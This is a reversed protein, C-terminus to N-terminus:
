ETFLLSTLSVPSNGPSDLETTRTIKHYRYKLFTTIILLYCMLFVLISVFCATLLTSGWKWTCSQTIQKEPTVWYNKKVIVLLLFM